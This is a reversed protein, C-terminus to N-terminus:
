AQPVAAPEEVREKGAAGDPTSGPPPPAVPQAAPSPARGPESTFFKRVYEEEAVAIARRLREIQAASSPKDLAAGADLFHKVEQYFAHDKHIRSRLADVAENIVTCVDQLDDGRRLSLKQAWRGNKMSIFFEKFRFIPGCFKFSYLV